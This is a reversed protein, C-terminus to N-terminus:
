RYSEKLVKKLIKGGQNRPFDDVFFIKKPIKYSAIMGALRKVLEEETLVAGRELMVFAAVVEGRRTDPIGVAAAEAVEPQAQIAREVEMPYINEGSSIIMEVKRGVLFIYGDEDRYGMDGTHFWGETFAQETAEPKEWYGSFLNPGRIIVEGTDGPSVDRKDDDVIRLGTHFDEKGVSGAKRISDALPVATIQCAETMGYGQAFSVGKENQYKKILPVPMPAGGSFFYHVHSFDAEPWEAAETMMQYMVPVAFMYNIKEHMILKIMESANFFHRLVLSGGAYVVPTTSAALSGIHFLPTSVLSKFTHNLGYNLLNHIADFTIARHSLVAGKPDGTTGSTYMILLPDYEIVDGVGPPEHISAGATLDSVSRDDLIEEGGHKIWAAIERRISKLSEVKEYFDSSYFVVRPRSNHLIYSLEPVALRFNVTVIIAGIKGCAFLIELFESSNLLLTAVRDGKKVGMGLLADAMRNVRENFQRNTFARDGGEEEQLFPGDPNREARKIIWEGVNM